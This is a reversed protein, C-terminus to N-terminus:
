IKEFLDFIYKRQSFYIIKSSRAIELFYKLHRLDKIEFEKALYGKMRKIKEEDDRTIIIDDVYVSLVM